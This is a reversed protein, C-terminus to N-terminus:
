WYIYDEMNWKQKKRKKQCIEIRMEQMKSKFHKMKFMM